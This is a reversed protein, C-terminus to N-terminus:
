GDGCIARFPFSDSASRLIERVGCEACQDVVTHFSQGVTAVGTPRRTIRTTAAGVGIRGTVSIVRATCPTAIATAATVTAVSPVSCRKAIAKTSRREGAGNAIEDHTAATTGACGIITRGIWCVAIRSTYVAAASGSAPDDDNM